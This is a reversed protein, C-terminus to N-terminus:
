LEDSPQESYKHIADIFAGLHEPDHDPYMGHGLNAIWRRTGFSEVLEKAISAIEEKSAYLACPDLNGQLTVNEGCRSRANKPKITWDLSVVEYNSESLEELAYHADKAFIIMPVHEVGKSTLNEKVKKSIYRIYPLSFKYFLQPGLIGANSEFLQVLQAGACIQAVLHDVITDALLQLLKHSAEPYCYLWKKVKSFTKSGGGEIMYGMLTWPAGAFGLLPCQGDIKIRTLTIAEYVYSLSKTVDCKFDLKEMDEPNVLPEPFSPGKGPIMEVTMGLAQPVVLIDSFIISGDLDFRRLPQLTVECALEPTRCVKFFENDARVAKFEPLYRGAQRMAWVPVREVKEGRAARLLLDNKLPPFVLTDNGKSSDM